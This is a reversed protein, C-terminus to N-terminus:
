RNRAAYVVVGAVAGLAAGATVASFRVLPDYSHDTHRTTEEHVLYAGFGAAAGALAGVFAHRVPGAARERRLTHPPEPSSEAALAPPTLRPLPPERWQAAAGAPALLLLAAFVIGRILM